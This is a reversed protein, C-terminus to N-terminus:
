DFRRPSIEHALHPHRLAAAEKDFMTEAEHRELDDHAHHDLAPHSLLLRPDLVARLLVWAVGMLILLDIWSLSMAGHYCRGGGRRPAARMKPAAWPGSM